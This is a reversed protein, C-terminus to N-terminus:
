PQCQSVEGASCARRRAAQRSGWERELRRLEARDSEVRARERSDAENAAEIAANHAALAQLDGASLPASADVVCDRCDPLKRSQLIPRPAPRFPVIEPYVPRPEEVFPRSVTLAPGSRGSSQVTSRYGYSNSANPLPRTRTVPSPTRATSTPRPVYPSGSGTAGQNASGNFGSLFAEALSPVRAQPAAAQQRERQRKLRIEEEQAQMAAVGITATDGREARDLMERREASDPNGSPPAFGQALVTGSLSFWIIIGLALRTM